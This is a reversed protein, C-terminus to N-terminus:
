PWWLNEFMAGVNSPNFMMAVRKLGPAIELPLGLWKGGLSDEFSGFGTINGNPHNLQAVFGSGVPDGVNGFVIPITRTERQVAVTAPTTSTVIIDPQLGVLEQALARTRTFDDGYWRVDVRVNRGDIWGLDALSQAFATLRRKGEADNEGVPMLVGIRRMREGRQARGTVPWAAAVSMGAIFARRKV